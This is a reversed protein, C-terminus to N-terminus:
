IPVMMYRLRLVLILYCSLYSLFFHLSSLFSVFSQHPSVEQLKHQCHNLVRRSFMTSRDDEPNTKSMTIEKIKILYSPVKGQQAHTEEVKPTYASDKSITVQRKKALLSIKVVYQHIVENKTEIHNPVPILQFCNTKVFIGDRELEQRRDSWYRGGSIRGRGRNGGRGRDGGRGGDRGGGRWDGYSIGEGGGQRGGVRGYSNDRQFNNGYHHQHHSMNVVFIRAVLVIQQHHLQILFHTIQTNPQQRSNPTTRYAVVFSGPSTIVDDDPRKNTVWRTNAVSSEQIEDVFDQRGATCKAISCYNKVNTM